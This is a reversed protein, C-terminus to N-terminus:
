SRDHGVDTEHFEVRLSTHFQKQEIMIVALYRKRFSFGESHPTTKTITVAVEACHFFRRKKFYRWVQNMRTYTTTM